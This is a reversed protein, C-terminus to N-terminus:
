LRDNAYSWPRWGWRPNLIVSIFGKRGLAGRKSRPQCEVYSLARRRKIGVNVHATCFLQSKVCSCVHPTSRRRDPSLQPPFTVWLSLRSYVISPRQMESYTGVRKHYLQSLSSSAAKSVYKTCFDWMQRLSPVEHKLPAEMDGYLWYANNRKRM